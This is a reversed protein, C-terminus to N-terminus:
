RSAENAQGEQRRVLRWLLRLVEPLFLLHLLVVDWLMRMSNHLYHDLPTNPLRCYDRHHRAM